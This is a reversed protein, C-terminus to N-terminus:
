SPDKYQKLKRYLTDRSIGLLSAAKTRNGQSVRLAQQIAVHELRDLSLPQNPLEGGAPAASETLLPRLDRDTITQPNEESLLTASELVNELERVNGPFPYGLFLDLAPRTITIDRLTRRAIRSIFHQTLVLIDEARTRLPPIEIAVASIRFYLDDRLHESRLIAIPRNTASIIRVDVQVARSSGVPRM